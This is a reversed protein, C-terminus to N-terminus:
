NLIILFSLLLHQLLTTQVISISPSQWAAITVMSVMGHEFSLYYSVPLGLVWCHLVSPNGWTPTWGLSCLSVREWFPPPSYTFGFLGQKDYVLGKILCESGCMFVLHDTMIGERCTDLLWSSLGRLEEQGTYWLIGKVKRAQLRSVTFRGLSGRTIM